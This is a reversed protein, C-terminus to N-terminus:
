KITLYLDQSAYATGGVTIEISYRCTGSDASSTTILIPVVKAEGAKITVDSFTELTPCVSSGLPTGSLGGISYTTEAGASALEDRIALYINKKESQKMNIEYVNLAAKKAGDALREIMEKHMEDTVSGFRDTVSGFTNKMFALGLGLMTIALILVVIANISLNLSGNKSFIM